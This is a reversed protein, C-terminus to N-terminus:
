NTMARIGLKAGLECDLVYCEGLTFSGEGSLYGWWEDQDLYYVVSNWGDYNMEMPLVTTEILYYEGTGPWIEVAVQAHGPPFVLMCNMGTSELASAMLMSTEICIGSRTQLVDAPLLVRQQADMSFGSNNYRVGAIDSIAGQIAIVQAWTNMSLDDFVGADQYGVLMQLAGDTIYSLYDIADRKLEVIEPADPTLWALVNDTYADTNVGDSWNIDYKSYLTINKSEQILLKGSDSDTVSYVLQAAKQSNLNIDGTILPPVIRIKEVQRGLTVMQRYPQTFGPVEVEILVDMEGYNCYGTFTALMEISRYNSPFVSDITEINIVAEPSSSQYSYSVDPVDILDLDATTEPAVETENGADDENEATDDAAVLEPETTKDSSTLFYIGLGGAILVPVAIIIAIMMGSLKKKETKAQMQQQAPPPVGPVGDGAPPPAYVPPPNYSNEPPTGYAPPPNYSQEPAAGYAPPPNNQSPDPQWGSQNGLPARSVDATTKDLDIERNGVPQFQQANRASTQYLATQDGTVPTQTMGCEPCFKSEDPINMGCKVCLM